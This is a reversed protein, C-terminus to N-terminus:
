VKRVKNGIIVQCKNKSSKHRIEMLKNIKILKNNLKIKFKNRMKKTM